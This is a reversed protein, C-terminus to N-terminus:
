VLRSVCNRAAFAVQLIPPLTHEGERALMMREVMLEAQRQRAAPSKPKSIGDGM